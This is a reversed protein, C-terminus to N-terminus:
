VETNWIGLCHSDWSSSFFALYMSSSSSLSIGILSIVSFGGTDTVFGGGAGGRGAWHGWVHKGGRVDLSSVLALWSLLCSSLNQLFM